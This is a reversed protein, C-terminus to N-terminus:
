LRRKVGPRTNGFSLTNRWMQTAEYILLLQEDPVGESTILDLKETDYTNGLLDCLFSDVVGYIKGPSVTLGITKKLVTELLLLFPPRDLIDCITDYHSEYHHHTSGQMCCHRRQSPCDSQCGWCDAQKQHTIIAAVCIGTTFRLVGLAAPNLRIQISVPCGDDRIATDVELESDEGIHLFSLNLGALYVAYEQLWHHVPQVAKLDGAEM